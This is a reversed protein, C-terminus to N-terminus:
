STKKDAIKFGIQKKEVKPPAMMERIADFVVKFQSDYRQELEYIKESLEKHTALARRLHVFARMIEINVMVARESKLVSSLMAIGQETFAIIGHRRGGWSRSMVSHSRLITVEQINLLFMFDPPFRKMNRKVAQLLVRTEVAYLESLDADLMVKQGRLLLIRKEIIEIPVINPM